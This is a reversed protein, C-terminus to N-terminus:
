ICSRLLEFRTRAMVKGFNYSPLYECGSDRRWLDRRNGFQVRKMLVLVGFFRLIEGTTTPSSSRDLLNDNTLEVIRALHTVPMMTMFCDLANFTNPAAGEQIFTGDLCQVRCALRAVAGNLATNESSLKWVQNHAVITDEPANRPQPLPVTGRIAPELGEMERQLQAEQTPTDSGASVPTTSLKTPETPLASNADSSPTQNEEEFLCNVVYLPDEEPYAPQRSLDQLTGLKVSSLPLTTIKAENNVVFACRLYRYTRNKIFKSHVDLVRGDLYTTTYQTGFVNRATRKGLVRSALDHVM